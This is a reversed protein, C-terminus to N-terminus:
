KSSGCAPANTRRSASICRSIAPPITLSPALTRLGDEREPTLGARFPPELLIRCEVGLDAPAEQRGVLRRGRAGERPVVAGFAREGQHDHEVLKRAVHEAVA